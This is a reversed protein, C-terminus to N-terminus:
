RSSVQRADACKALSKLDEPLGDIGGFEKVTVSTIKRKFEPKLHNYRTEIAGGISECDDELIMDPNAREAADSYEENTRRHFLGGDPFGLKHLVSRIAEIELPKVRSTLYLIQARSREL